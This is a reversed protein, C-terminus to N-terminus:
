EQTVADAAHDARRRREGVSADARSSGDRRGGRCYLAAVAGARARVVAEAAAAARRRLLRAARQQPAEHGEQGAPADALGEAQGVDPQDGLDEEEREEIEDPEVLLDDNVEEDSNELLRRVYERLLQLNRMFM